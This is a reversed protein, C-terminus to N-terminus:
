RNAQHNSVIEAYRERQPLMVPRVDLEERMTTNILWDALLEDGPETMSMETRELM